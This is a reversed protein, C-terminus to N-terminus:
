DSGNGQTEVTFEEMMQDIQLTELEEKMRHFGAILRQSQDASRIISDLVQREQDKPATLRFLSVTGTILHYIPGLVARSLDGPRRLEQECVQTHTRQFEEVERLTHEAQAGASREVKQLMKKMEEVDKRLPEVSKMLDEGLERVQSENERETFSRFLGAAVLFGAAGGFVVAGTISAVKALSIGEVPQAALLGVACVLLGVVGAIPELRHRTREQLKRVREAVKEFEGVTQRMRPEHQDFTQIFSAAHKILSSLLLSLDPPLPRSRRGRRRRPRRRGPAPDM